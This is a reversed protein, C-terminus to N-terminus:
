AAQGDRERDQLMRTARRLAQVPSVTSPKRYKVTVLIGDGLDITVPEPRPAPAPRRAKVAQVLETVESRTLGEAMVAQAVEAQVAPDPLKALEHAVTAALAGQEVQTQVEAPLDLLSLARTVTAPNLALEAALQRASWGNLGILAKFAKAQEVPRLDERLANEVLQLALLEGPGAPAEMVMCSLSPLGAMRAARWRREGCVIVYLGRGEDWRVRVPQLQGRTKLSEALRALGEEDFEERPQEPDRDIKSVPIEVANKSKAVGQLRAPVPPPGAPPAAPDESAAGRPRDAGTSEAINDGAAALIKDLKSM